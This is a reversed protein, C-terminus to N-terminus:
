VGEGKEKSVRRTGVNGTLVSLSKRIHDRIRESRESHPNGTLEDKEEQRIKENCLKALAEWAIFNGANAFYNIPLYTLDSYDGSLCSLDKYNEAIQILKKLMFVNSAALRELAFIARLQLDSEDDDQPSMSAFEVIRDNLNPFEPYHISLASLAAAAISKNKDDLLTFLLKEDGINAVRVLGQVASVVVHSPLLERNRINELLSEHVRDASIHSKKRKM